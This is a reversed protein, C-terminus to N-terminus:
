ASSYLHLPATWPICFPAFLMLSDAWGSTAASSVLIFSSVKRAAISDARVFLTHVFFTHRYRNGMSLLNGIYFYHRNRSPVLVYLTTRKCRVNDNGRNTHGSIFEIYSEKSPTNRTVNNQLILKRQVNTHKELADKVIACQIAFQICRL